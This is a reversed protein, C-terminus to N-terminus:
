ELDATAIEAGCEQCTVTIDIEQNEWDSAGDKGCTWRTETGCTECDLMADLEAWDHRHGPASVALGVVEDDSANRGTQFEDPAFHIVEGSDVTVDRREKQDQGVQFTATGSIVYCLEEQDNHTHLGASFAEDPALNYHTIAVDEAGVAGTISKWVTNAGM